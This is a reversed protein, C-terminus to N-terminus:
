YSSKIAWLIRHDVARRFVDLESGCSAENRRDSLVRSSTLALDYAPLTRKMVEKASDESAGVALVLLLLVLGEKGTM